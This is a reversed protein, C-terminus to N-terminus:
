NGETKKQKSLCKIISCSDSQDEALQFMREVGKPLSQEYINHATSFDISHAIYVIPADTSSHEDQKVDVEQMILNIEPLSFRM